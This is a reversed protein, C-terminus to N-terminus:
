YIKEWTGASHQHHGQKKLLASLLLTKKPLWKLMTNRHLMLTPLKSRFQPQHFLLLLMSMLPPQLPMAQQTRSQFRAHGSETTVTRHKVSPLQAPPNGMEKRHWEEAKMLPEQGCFSLNEQQTQLYAGRSKM